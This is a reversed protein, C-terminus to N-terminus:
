GACWCSLATEMMVCRLTVCCEVFIRCLLQVLLLRCDILRARHSYSYYCLLLDALLLKPTPRANMWSYALQGDAATLADRAAANQHTCRLEPPLITVNKSIEWLGRRQDQFQIYWRFAWLDLKGVIRKGFPFTTLNECVFWFCKATPPGIANGMTFIYFLGGFVEEEGQVVHVGM